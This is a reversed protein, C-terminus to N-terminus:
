PPDERLPHHIDLLEIADLLPTRKGDFGSVGALDGPLGDVDATVKWAKLASEVGDRGERVIQALRKVKNRRERWFDNHFGGAAGDGRTGLVVEDLWAFTYPRTSEGLEYPRRTLHWDGARYERMRLSKITETPMTFGIHWDLGYAPEPSGNALLKKANRCLSEALQYARAFPAHSKVIAVGASAGIRGGLSAIDTGQFVELASRALDLAIRGDCIFTLDDGGLLVPRIPLSLTGPTSHLDFGKDLSISRVRPTRHESSPDAEVALSGCVRGLVKRMAKKGVEALEESLRELGHRFAEDDAERSGEVWRLVRRGVQNGDVHVIGVLSLEGPRRGLRDIDRPLELRFGEWSPFPLLSTWRTDDHGLQRRAAVTASAPRVSGNRDEFLHTAVARTEACEATVSLGLAPAAGTLELKRLNMARGAQLFAEALGGELYERHVVEVGLGPFSEILCRSYRSAFSRAAAIGPFRLLANGGAAFVLEGEPGAMTRLTAAAAAKEVLTSGAVIDKLRNSAFVFPQIRTVDILTLVGGQPTTVLPAM